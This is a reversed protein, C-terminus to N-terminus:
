SPDYDLSVTVDRTAGSWQGSKVDTEVTVVSDSDVTEGVSTTNQQQGSSLILTAKQTGNIKLTLLHDSDPATSAHAILQDIVIALQAHHKLVTTDPPHPGPMSAEIQRVVEIVGGGGGGGGGGVGGGGGATEDSEMEFKRTLGSTGADKLQSLQVEAKDITGFTRKLRSVTYLDGDITFVDNPWVEENGRLLVTHERRQITDRQQRMAAEATIEELLQDSRPDGASYPGIQWDQTIDVGSLQLARPHNPTPGDGLLQSFSINRGSQSTDSVVYKTREIRSGRVSLQVNVHDLWLIGNQLSDEDTIDGLRVTLDGDLREPGYPPVQPVLLRQRKIFNNSLPADPVEEIDRFQSQSSGWILGRITWGQKLQSTIRGKLIEDGGYVDESFIIHGKPNGEPTGQATWVRLRAGKPFVINGSNGPVSGVVVSGDEAPPADSQIVLEIPTLWWTNGQDSVVSIQGWISSGGTEAAYDWSIQYAAKPGAFYTLSPVTQQVYAPGDPANASDPFTEILYRDNQTNNRGVPANDYQVRTVGGSSGPNAQWANGLPSEFSPEVVLQGLGEYDHVSEATRLREVLGRPKESSKIEDLSRNLDRTTPNDNTVATQSPWMKIEGNTDIQHRQRVVWEGRSLFLEMGFRELIAELVRRENRNATTEFGEEGEIPELEDFANQATTLEDLPLQNASLQNGIRYPYWEMNAAVNLQHLGRLIDRLTTYLDNSSSPDFDRDELLALGDLVSLQITEYSRHPNDKYLDNAVFGLWELQHGSGTDREFRARWETDGADFVEKVQQGDSDGVIRVTGTSIKLPLTLDENADTRKWELSFPEKAPTLDTVGAGYGDQQLQLRCDATSTEWQLRYKTGYAM